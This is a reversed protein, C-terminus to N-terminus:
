VTIKGSKSQEVFAKLQEKSMSIKGGFDDTIEVQKEEPLSDDVFIQPCCGPGCFPCLTTIHKRTMVEGTNHKESFCFM